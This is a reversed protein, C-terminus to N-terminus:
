NCHNMVYILHTTMIIFYCLVQSIRGVTESTGTAIEHIITKEDSGSTYIKDVDM